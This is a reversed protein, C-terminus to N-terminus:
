PRQGRPSMPPTSGMIPGALGGGPYFRKSEPVTGVGPLALKAVKAATRDDVKRAVYVFATNPLMLRKRLDARDVHVIPALKRAYMSPDKVVRPDAYITHQPVSLALDHGNRDFISGREAALSVTRVRQAEAMAEYHKGEIGQVDVLRM